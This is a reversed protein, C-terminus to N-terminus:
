GELWGKKKLNTNFIMKVMARFVMLCRLFETLAMEIRKMQNLLHLSLLPLPYINARPDAEPKFIEFVRHNAGLSELQFVPINTLHVSIMVLCVTLMLQYAPNNFIKMTLVSSGHFEVDTELASSESAAGLRM